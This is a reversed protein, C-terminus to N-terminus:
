LLCNNHEQQTSILCGLKCALDSGRFRLTHNVSCLILAAFSAGVFDVALHLTLQFLTHILYLCCLLKSKHFVPKATILKTKLFQIMLSIYYM